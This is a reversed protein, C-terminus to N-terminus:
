AQYDLQSPAAQGLGSTCLACRRRVIFGRVAAQIKVAAAQRAALQRRAQWGRVARCPVLRLHLKFTRKSIPLWILMLPPPM